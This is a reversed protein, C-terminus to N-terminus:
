KTSFHERLASRRNQGPNYGDMPVTHEYGEFIFRQPPLAPSIRRLQPSRPTGVREYVWLGSGTKLKVVRGDFEFSTAILRHNRLAGYDTFTLIETSQKPAGIEIWNGYVRSPSIHNQHSTYFAYGLASALMISIVLIVILVLSDNNSSTRGLKTM